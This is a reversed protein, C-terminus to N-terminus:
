APIMAQISGTASIVITTKSKIGAMLNFPKYEENIRIV